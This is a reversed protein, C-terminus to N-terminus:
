QSFLNAGGAGVVAYGSTSHVIANLNGSVGSSQATWNTGNTSTFIAGNAGVSVFQLGYTVANLASAALPAQLTWAAGDTSTVLTGAAGVAVFTTTGLTTDSYGYAVGNLDATTNSTVAHWNTADASAVITGGAGVAMWTGGNYASYTVGYLDKATGSNAAAYWTKGDTSTIITGNAGVAVRLSVNNSAIAYLNNATGTTGAAWTVADTSYLMAGGAGVAMYTGFYTAGYISNATTYNIPAWTTGNSSSYMTGGAGAAVYMTVATGTTTVTGVTVTRLDNPSLPSGASWASGAMRPVASVSPTGVGGPGGDTRGNLTFSYTVGNTLGTVVQPSVAKVIAHSGPISNWSSTSLSSAPAYFLWYEVDPAADWTVTVRSEGALVSIGGSPPPASSGKSCATALFAAILAALILRINPLIVRSRRGQRCHGQVLNCPHTDSPASSISM